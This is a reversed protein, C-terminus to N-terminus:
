YIKIIRIGAKGGPLEVEILDGANKDLIANGIPSTYSIIGETLNSDAEGLIKFTEKEGNLEIDVTSGFGVKTIDSASEEVIKSYKIQNTINLLKSALHHIQEELFEFFNNEHWGGGSGSTEGMRFKTETLENELKKKEELLKQYGEKTVLNEM